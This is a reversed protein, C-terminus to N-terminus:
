IARRSCRRRTKMAVDIRRGVEEEDEEEEDEEGTGGLVAEMLFDVDEGDHLMGKCRSCDCVFGYKNSLATQRLRTPQALDAYSHCLEEGQDIRRTTRVHLKAGGVYALVCNPM